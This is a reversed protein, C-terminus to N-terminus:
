SELPHEPGGSSPLTLVLFGLLEGLHHCSVAPGKDGPCGCCFGSRGWSTEWLGWLGPHWDRPHELSSDLVVSPGSGHTTLWGEAWEGRASRRGRPGVTCVPNMRSHEVSSPPLLKHRNPKSFQQCQSWVSLHMSKTPSQATLLPKDVSSQLYGPGPARPVQLAPDPSLSAKGAM